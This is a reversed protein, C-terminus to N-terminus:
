NKKRENGLILIVQAAQVGGHSQVLAYRPDKVQKGLAEGRLQRLAESVLDASVSALGFSLHGGNTNCPLNGGDFDINGNEVFKGGEGKECFGCDELNMLGAYSSITTLEALDIDDPELSAMEFADRSAERAASTTITTWLDSPSSESPGLRGSLYNHTSREGAGLVYVPKSSLREAREASTVIFAGATGSPKAPISIDLQHLPSAYMPSDLVQDISLPGSKYSAAKPHTLAWNRNEVAFKAAQEPRIGYEHIYRQAILAYLSPNYIGYPLDFWIDGEAFANGGVKEGAGSLFSEGAVCLVTNVYGSKIAMAAYHISAALGANHPTIESNLKPAIMLEQQLVCSYARRRDQTPHPGTFIGDIDNKSLGCDDLATRIARLMLDMPTLYEGEDRYADGFGVIAATGNLSKDGIAICRCGATIQM